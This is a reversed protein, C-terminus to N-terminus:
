ASLPRKRAMGARRPFRPPTPMVKSYVHLSRHDAGAFPAVPVVARPRLGVVAAAAEGAREEGPDRRGKWAVLIGGERLIPAAYEVLVSLPAVARVCVADLERQGWDEVRSCVVEANEARASERARDLFECKRALSEVLFVHADPLAVALPVGPFGAGAGLDAIRTAARLEPVVLGSLSDAVHADVAEPPDRVTTPATPDEAVLRLLAALRDVGDTPLAYEGALEELRRMWAEHAM